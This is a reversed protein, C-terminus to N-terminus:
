GFPNYQFQEWIVTKNEGVVGFRGELAISAAALRAIGDSVHYISHNNTNSVPSITIPCQFFESSQNNGADRHAWMWLCRPGCSYEIAKQPIDDDRYAYTTSGQAANAIPIVISGVHSDNRYTFNWAAFNGNVDNAMIHPLVESYSFCHGASATIIRNSFSPYIKQTDAPNFESFRYAFEQRNPTRRCYYPYNNKSNLINSTEKYPGCGSSSTQEGYIHALGQTIEADDECVPNSNDKGRYHFYCRLNPVNVVGKTVYTGNWDKGDDFSYTQSLLAVSTQALELDM